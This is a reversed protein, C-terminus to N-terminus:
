ILHVSGGHSDNSFKSYDSFHHQKYEIWHLQLVGNATFIGFSTTQCNMEECPKLCAPLILSLSFKPVLHHLKDAVINQTENSLLFEIEPCKQQGRFSRLAQNKQCIATIQQCSFILLMYKNQIPCRMVSAFVLVCDAEYKLQFHVDSTAM